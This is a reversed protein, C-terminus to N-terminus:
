EREQATAGPADLISQRADDLSLADEAFAGALEAEVPDFEVEYGPVETDLLKERVVQDIDSPGEVAAAAADLVDFENTM